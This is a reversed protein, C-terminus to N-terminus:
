MPEGRRDKQKNEDEGRGQKEVERCIIKAAM